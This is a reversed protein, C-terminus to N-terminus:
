LFFCMYHCFKTAFAYNKRTSCTALECVLCFDRNYLREILDTYNAMLFSVIMGEEKHSMRTKNSINIEHVINTFIPNLNVNTTLQNRSVIPLLAEINNRVNDLKYRSDSRIMAEARAINDPTIDLLQPNKSSSKLIYKKAMREETLISM